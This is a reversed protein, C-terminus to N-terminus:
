KVTYGKNQIIEKVEGESLGNLDVEVIHNDLDFEVNSLGKENLAKEITMKCHNCTMDTVVFKTMKNGGNKEEFETFKYKRLRLANLV